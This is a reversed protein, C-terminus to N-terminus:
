APLSVEGAPLERRADWFVLRDVTWRYGALGELERDGIAAVDGDGRAITIHPVYERGEIAGLVGFRDVLADHLGELAPSDVALYIVPAPGAPPDEFRDVGTIEVEFPATGTLEERMARELAAFEGASRADLRKVVLTLEDRLREFGTLAARLDWVGSSVAGPVPVNLSYM